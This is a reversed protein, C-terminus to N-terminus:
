PRVGPFYDTQRGIPEGADFISAAGQRPNRFEGRRVAWALAWVTMLAGCIATLWIIMSILFMSGGFAPYRLGINFVLCFSGTIKKRRPAITDGHTAEAIEGADSGGGEFIKLEEVDVGDFSEGGGVGILEEGVELAEGGRGLVGANEVDEAAGDGLGAVGIEGDLLAVPPVPGTEALCAL